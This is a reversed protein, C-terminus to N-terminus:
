IVVQTALHDFTYDHELMDIIQQVSIIPCFYSKKDYGFRCDGTLNNGM